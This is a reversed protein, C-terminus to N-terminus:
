KTLCKIVSETLGSFKIEPLILKCKNNSLRKSSCLFYKRMPSATALIEQYNKENIPLKLKNAILRQLTGMKIPMGDSVNIIGIHKKSLLCNIAIKAADKIYIMNSYPAQNTKIVAKNTKPLRDPGYMGAVRMITWDINNERAFSQIQSEADLRRRQIDFKINCKSDEDVWNGEHDGYVGSSGWYVINAVLDKNLLELLTNTLLQDTTGSPLPPACYLIIQPKISINFNQIDAKIHHLQNLQYKDPYSRSVASVHHNGKILEKACHYGSYGYGLILINM